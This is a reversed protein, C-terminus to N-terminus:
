HGLDIDAPNKPPANGGVRAFLLLMVASIVTPVAMALFIVTSVLVWFTPNSLM